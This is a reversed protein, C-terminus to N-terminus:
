SALVRAAATRGSILAGHVTGFYPASTAEGAFFLRGSEPAALADRDAGSSGVANFSYAGRAFPDARWRTIQWAVPDPVAQGWMERARAMAAALIARDDLREVAEAHDAATFAVLVPTAEVKALSVWQTWDGKAPTLHDHWDFGAPWFVRDFRLWLKNLLGMGLREVARQKPAPLPPDFRISGAKLVGLPVTIVTKDAELASGDALEVRVPSWGWHVARVVQGLRVDLGRALHTTLQGYGKPFLGDGGGFGAGDDVHWASLASTPGSYEHEYTGNVYHDLQAQRVPDLSGPPAVADLAAQVSVDAELEEAREMAQEFLREAWATGADRAGLAALQPAITTRTSDYSTTVWRAGAARALDTVPNGDLGHIWSAGLDMPLDPWALSTHIRGGIRDRAELVTVQAGGKVLDAAAALGAIGAGIVVM